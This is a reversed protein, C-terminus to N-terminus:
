EGSVWWGCGSKCEWRGRGRMRMQLCSGGVGYWVCRMDLLGDVGVCGRFFGLFNFFNCFWLSKVLGRIYSGNDQNQEVVCISELRRPGM